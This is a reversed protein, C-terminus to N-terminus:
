FGGGGSGNNPRRPSLEFLAEDIESITQWLLTQDYRLDFTLKDDLAFDGKLYGTTAIHGLADSEVRIYLQDELTKFEAVGRLNAYLPELEQKFRLMDSLCIYIQVDGTFGGAWVQARAKTWDCGETKADAPAGILTVEIREKDPHGLSFFTM